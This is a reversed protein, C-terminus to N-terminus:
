PRSPESMDRMQQEIDAASANSRAASESDLVHVLAPALFVAAIVLCQAVGYPLLSRMLAARGVDAGGCHRRALIVAYGVPPILYGTQIVLLLLVAAQQADGLSVILPPALIPAIVFILEFADMVLACVAVGLLVLAATTHPMLGSQHIGQAIWQTTGFLQFVLSFTSAGVLLALLAGSLEMTETFVARWQVADLRRSLGALLMLVLCGTASAEVALVKGLFVAGLLLGIGAFAALALFGHGPEVVPAAVPRAAATARRGRWWAIAAWLLLVMAAPLVAAHFVDQTNIIRQLGLAYGGLNSAETHAQLMADGLLILVLSPPVVVGITASVSLLAIADSPKMASLRSGLVRAVLASSSAVSGNMPSLVLGIGLSSLSAGAGTRHLLRAMVCFLAEAVRLRSLLVGILVYLPLAQLLDNNLLGLMRGSLATLVHVDMNGMACGLVAFVSATAILLAWVPLGSRLILVALVLLMWLGAPSASM